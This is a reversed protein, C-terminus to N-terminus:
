RINIKIKKRQPFQRVSRPLKLKPLLQLERCIQELIPNTFDGTEISECLEIQEETLLEKPILISVYAKIEEIGLQKALYPRHNGGECVSYMGDPFRVINLDKYSFDDYIYGNKKISQYLRKLKEEKLVGEYSLGIINRVSVEYGGLDYKYYNGNYRKALDAFFQWGTYDIRLM